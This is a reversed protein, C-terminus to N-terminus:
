GPRKGPQQTSQASPHRAGDVQQNQQGQQGPKAQTDAAQMSAGTGEASGNQSATAQRQFPDRFNQLREEQQRLHRGTEEEAVRRVEQVLAQASQSTKPAHAETVRALEVQADAALQSIHRQYARLKDSAPQASSAAVGIAESGNGTTFMRQGATMAEELMTQGLQMNAQCVQQFSQSMMNSLDNFYAVQADLHTRVAPNVSNSYPFM